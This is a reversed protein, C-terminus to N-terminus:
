ALWVVRILVTVLCLCLHLRSLVAAQVPCALLVMSLLKLLSCFLVWHQLRCNKWVSDRLHGLAVSCYLCVCPLGSNMCCCCRWIDVVHMCSSLLKQMRLPDLLLQRSACDVLNHPGTFHIYFGVCDFKLGQSFSCYTIWSCANIM